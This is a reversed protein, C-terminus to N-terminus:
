YLATARQWMQWSLANARTADGGAGTVTIVRAQPDVEHITDLVNKLADPTHAYDVIATVEGPCHITYMRYDVPRLRSLAVLVDESDWGILRAAGYVAMLNSANFRGMFHTAVDKYAIELTM